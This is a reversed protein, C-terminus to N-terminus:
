KVKGLVWDERVDQSQMVLIKVLSDMTVARVINNDGNIPKFGVLWKGGKDGYERVGIAQPLLMNHRRKLITNTDSAYEDKEFQIKQISLDIIKDTYGQEEVFTEAILTALKPGIPQTITDLNQRLTRPQHANQPTNLPPQSCAM